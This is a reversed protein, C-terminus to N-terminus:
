KGSDRNLLSSATLATTLPDGPKVRPVSDKPLGRAIYPDVWFKAEDFSSVTPSERSGAHVERHCNACLLVCKKLEDDPRPELGVLDEM